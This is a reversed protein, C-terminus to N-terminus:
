WRRLRGGRGGGVGQLGRIADLRRGLPLQLIGVGVVVRRDHLGPVLQVHAVAAVAAVAAISATANARRQDVVGPHIAPIVVREEPQNREATVYQLALAVAADGLLVHYRGHRRHAQDYRGVVLQPPYEAEDTGVKVPRRLVLEALRRFRHRGSALPWATHALDPM